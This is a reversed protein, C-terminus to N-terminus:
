GREEMARVVLARVAPSVKKADMAAKMAETFDLTSDQLKGLEELFEKLEMDEEAKRVETGSIIDASTNLYHPTLTGDEYLLGVQPKYDIEDAKRRMLSGCNFVKPSRNSLFGKHNDGVVVVDWGEVEKLFNKIHADESAGPYSAGESWLYRHVLAAKIRGESVDIGTSEGVAKLPTGWPFGEVYLCDMGMTTNPKLDVIKGAKVLTMYASKNLLDLSHLPLDHQGPIAYLEPLNEIAWNILEPPSNWRDFIDGACLIPAQDNDESLRKLERLPRAQAELWDPEGSRAVPAKLSLHIDSCLIAIAKRRM